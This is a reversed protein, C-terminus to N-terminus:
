EDEDKFMDKNEKNAQKEERELEKDKEVPFMKKKTMETAKRSVRDIIGDLEKTTLKDAPVTVSNGNRLLNYGNAMMYGLMQKIYGERMDSFKDFEDPTMVRKDAGVTSEERNVKPVRIKKDELFKGVPTEKFKDSKNKIIGTEKLIQPVVRSQMNEKLKEAEYPNTAAGVLQVPTNLVPVQEILGGSAGLGAKYLSEFTSAKKNDRYNDYIHRATAAVQMIELPLAHQVPKPLMQGGVEMEDSLLDGEQRQKNPNFKSYLGGFQSAGFWGALWLATGLTGQKLQRMIADAEDNSLNELGKRYAEVVKYAGRGLGLPSTSIVRRVINTPVTSVPILFDVVTKATAGANGSKDLETKKKNFWKSVVNEEQFIEYNARKYAANEIANIVLPDTIDFGNKEHWVLSNKLSAEYTARKLPDKIAMHLDTPLSIVQDLTELGGKIIKGSTTKRKGPMTIEALDDRMRSDFKLSLNSQGHKIIEWTNEVFKKPNFFETYFKAEAKASTWGEIPAKEAIGKFAIAYINGIVQEPIRKGAGGITAAASLKYLVNVGSLVSARTLKSMWLLGKQYMNKQSMFAENKMKRIKYEAQYVRQQAKLLETTKKIIEPSAKEEKLYDGTEIKNELTDAKKNLRDVEAQIQEDQDRNQKELKKAESRLKSLQSALESRSQKKENYKGSIINVVDQKSIDDIYDKLEGHLKDVVEEFKIIGEEAYSKVLKAIDPLIAVIEKAFPLPVASLGEGGERSKKLKDKISQKIDEREKKFDEASKQSKKQGKGKSVNEKAKLDDIEKQLKAVNELADNREKITADLKEQVEKPIEGAYADKIFLKERSPNFGADIVPQMSNGIKSWKNGAIQAAETFQDIEDSLQQLQAAYEAKKGVDDTNVKAEQLRKTEAELQHSHYQLDWVEEDSRYGEKDSLIRKVLERPNSKDSDVREKAAHLNETDKGLKPLEVKPLEREGRMQNTISKKVGTVNNDPLGEDAVSETNAPPIIESEKAQEGTISNDAIIGTGESTTSVSRQEDATSAEQSGTNNTTENLELNKIDRTPSLTIIPDIFHIKGDEGKIVNEGHLDQLWVGTKKNFFQIDQTYPTPLNDGTVENYNAPEFGLKKLESVVESYKVPSEGKVILPQELVSSFKGDRESFGKLTYAVDPFLANHIAIKHFFRDWTDHTPNDNIKTVSKGDSNIFVDQETGAAHPSGFNNEVLLNNDKAYKKLELEEKNRLQEQSLGEGRKKATDNASRIAGTIVTAEANREGGAISGQKETPSLTNPLQKALESEYELNTVEKKNDLNKGGQAAKSENEKAASIEPKLTSPTAEVPQEPPQPKLVEAKAENTKENDNTKLEVINPKTNEEPKIVSVKAVTSLIDERKEPTTEAPLKDNIERLHNIQNQVINISSPDSSKKVEEIQNDIVEKPLLSAAVITNDYDKKYSLDTAVRSLGKLVLPIAQMGLDMKIGNIVADSVNDFIGVEKGAEIDGINSPIQAAGFIAGVKTARAPVGNLIRSSSELVKPLFSKPISNVFEGEDGLAGGSIAGSIAKWKSSAEIQKVKDELSLNENSWIDLANSGASSLAGIAAGGAVGGGAFYPAIEGGFEALSNLTGQNHEEAGQPFGEKLQQLKNRALLAIEPDDSNVSSSALGAQLDNVSKFAGRGASWALDKIGELPHILSGKGETKRFLQGNDDFAVQGSSYEKEFKDETYPVINGNDDVFPHYKNMDGVFKNAEQEMHKNADELTYGYKDMIKKADVLPNTEINSIETTTQQQEPLATADKGSTGDNVLKTYLEKNKNKLTEDVSIRDKEAQKQYASNNKSFINIPEYDKPQITKEVESKVKLYAPSGEPAVILNDLLKQKTKHEIANERATKQETKLKDSEKHVKINTSEPLKTSESPQPQHNFSPRLMEDVPTQPTAGDNLDLQVVPPNSPKQAQGNIKFEFETYDPLNNKGYAHELNTYIGKRYNVDTDLKQYFTNEDPLNEKGYAAELNKYLGKKYENGDPM